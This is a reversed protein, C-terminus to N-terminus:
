RPQFRIEILVLNQKWGTAVRAGDPTRLTGVAGILYSIQPKLLTNQGAEVEWGATVSTGVGTGANRITHVSTAYYAVGLGAEVFPGGHRRSSYSVLASFTQVLPVTDTVNRVWYRWEAGVRLHPNPTGGLAIAFNEGGVWSRNGCSDCSLHAWGGGAGPAFWFGHRDTQADLPATFVLLWASLGIALLVSHRM